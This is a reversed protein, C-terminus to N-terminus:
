WAHNQEAKCFMIGNMVRLKRKWVDNLDDGDPHSLDLSYM